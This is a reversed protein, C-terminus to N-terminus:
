PQRQRALSSAQEAHSAEAAIKVAQGAQELQAAERAQAARAQRLAEVAKPDRLVNGGTVTAAHVLRAAEDADFNDRVNPDTVAMQEISGHFQLVARADALKLQKALPSVYEIGLRRGELEAPPEPMRGARELIRFRRAILPSLGGTQFRVLNPAMLRLKEAEFGLFETATMQPRNVLQMLGYFMASFIAERKQAAKEKALQVRSGRNVPQLLQKGADTVTGHLVANPVIDAATIVSDDHLLIIPEADFQAAVIDTREIEQLMAADARALHAPGTPYARNARRRWMPIHVPLEFYGGAQYFDRLDPSCYSSRWPMGRPGLKGPEFDRNRTVSHVIVYDRSDHCQGTYRFREKVRAGKLRFERNFTDVEGDADVDFYSQGVPLPRDVIRPEGGPGIREEQYFAGWGFTGLNAIWVPAEAYFNSVAPSLSAYLRDTVADLWTRVPHWATLEPDDAVELEFWRSAPNVAQGFVGGTFSELAYLPTSDFLEALDDGKESRADFDQDDPMFLRALDRWVPEERQRATKLEEHRKITEQQM